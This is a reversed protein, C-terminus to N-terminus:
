RRDLTLCELGAYAARSQRQPSLSLILFKPCLLDHRRVMMIKNVEHRRLAISDQIDPHRIIHHKPCVLMCLPHSTFERFAVVDMHQNPKFLMLINVLGNGAFFCELLKGPFFFQGQYFGLVRKPEVQLFSTGFEVMTMATEVAIWHWTNYVRTHREPNDSKCCHCSSLM